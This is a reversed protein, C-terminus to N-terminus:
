KAVAGRIGRIGSKEFKLLIPTTNIVQIVPTARMQAQLLIRWLRARDLWRFSTSDDGNWFNTTQMM